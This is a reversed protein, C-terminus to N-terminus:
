SPPAAASADPGLIYVTEPTRTMSVARISPSHQTMSGRGHGSSALVFLPSTAEASRLSWLLDADTVDVSHFLLKVVARLM